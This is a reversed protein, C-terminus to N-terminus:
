ARKTVSIIKDEKIDYRITYFVVYRDKNKQGPKGLQCTAINKEVVTGITVLSDKEIRDLIYQYKHDCILQEIRREIPPHANKNERAFSFACCATFVLLFLYKKM